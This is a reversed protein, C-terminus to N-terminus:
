AASTRRSKKSRAPCDHASATDNSIWRRGCDCTIADGIAIPVVALQRVDVLPRVNKWGTTDVIEGRERTVGDADFGGKQIVYLADDTITPM